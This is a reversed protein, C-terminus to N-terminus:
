KRKQEEKVNNKEKNEKNQNHNKYEGMAQFYSKTIGYAILRSLIYLFIITLLVIAAIEFITFDMRFGM